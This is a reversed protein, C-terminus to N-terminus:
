INFLLKAKKSVCDLAVNPQCSSAKALILSEVCDINSAPRKKLFGPQFPSEGM